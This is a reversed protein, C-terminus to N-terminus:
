ADSVSPEPSSEPATRIRSEKLWVALLAIRCINDGKLVEGGPTKVEWGSQVDFGREKLEIALVSRRSGSCYDGDRDPRRIVHECVLNNLRDEPLMDVLRELAERVVRGPPAYRVLERAFRIADEPPFDGAELVRMRESIIGDNVVWEDREVKAKADDLSNDREDTM